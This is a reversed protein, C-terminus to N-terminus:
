RRRYTHEHHARFISREAHSEYPPHTTAIPALESLPTFTRKARLHSTPYRDCSVLWKAGLKQLISLPRSGAECGWEAVSRPSGSSRGEIGAM